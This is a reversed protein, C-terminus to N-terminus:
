NGKLLSAFFSKKSGKFNKTLFHLAFNEESKVKKEDTENTKCYEELYYDAVTKGFSYLCLFYTIMCDKEKNGEFANVWDIVHLNGKKDKIVNELSFKGHCLANNDFHPGIPQNDCNESDNLVSFCDNIKKHLLVFEDIINKYNTLNQKLISFLTEGEVFEGVCEVGKETATVSYIQPVNLQTGNIVKSTKLAEELAYVFSKRLAYVKIKKDGHHYVTKDNSVAIIRDYEM